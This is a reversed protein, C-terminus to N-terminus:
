HFWWFLITRNKMRFLFKRFLCVKYIYGHNYYYISPLEYWVYEHIYRMTSIYVYYVIYEPGFQPLARQRRAAEIMHCLTLFFNKLIKPETMIFFTYKSTVRNIVWCLTVPTPGGWFTVLKIPVFHLCSIEFTVKWTVWSHSLLLVM